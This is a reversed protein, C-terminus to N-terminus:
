GDDRSESVAQGTEECCRLFFGYLWCRKLEALDASDGGIRRAAGLAIYHRVHGGPGPVRWSAAREDAPDPREAPEHRALEASVQSATRAALAARLEPHPRRAAEFRETEIKRALYGARALRAALDRAGDDASGARPLEPAAGFKAAAPEEDGAERGLLEDLLGGILHRAAVETRVSIVRGAGAEM